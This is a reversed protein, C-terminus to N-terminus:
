SSDCVHVHELLFACPDFTPRVFRALDNMALLTRGSLLRACALLNPTLRVSSWIRKDHNRLDGFSPPVYDVGALTSSSAPGARWGHGVPAHTHDVVHDDHQGNLGHHTRQMPIIMDGPSMDQIASHLLQPHPHAATSHSQPQPHRAVQGLHAILVIM